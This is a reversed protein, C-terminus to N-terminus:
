NFENLREILEEAYDTTVGHKDWTCFLKFFSLTKHIFPKPFSLSKEEIALGDFKTHRIVTEYDVAVDLAFKEHLKNEIEYIGPVILDIKRFNLYVSNQISKTDFEKIVEYKPRIQWSLKESRKREVSEDFEYENISVLWQLQIYLNQVAKWDDYAKANKICKQVEKWRVFYPSSELQKDIWKDGYKLKGIINKLQGIM